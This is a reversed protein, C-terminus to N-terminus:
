ALTLFDGEPAETPIVSTAYDFSFRDHPILVYLIIFGIEGGGVDRKRRAVSIHVCHTHNVVLGPQLPGTSM